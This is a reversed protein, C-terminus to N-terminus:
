EELKIDENLFFVKYFMELSEMLESKTRQIEKIKLGSGIEDYLIDEEDFSVELDLSGDEEYVLTLIGGVEETFLVCMIKLEDKIGQPLTEFDENIYFKKEYGNSGCLVVRDQYM